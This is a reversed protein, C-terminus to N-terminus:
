VIHETMTERSVNLAGLNYGAVMKWALDAAALPDRGAGYAELAWSLLKDDIRQDRPWERSFEIAWRALKLPDVREAKLRDRERRADRLDSALADIENQARFLEYEPSRGFPNLPQLSM